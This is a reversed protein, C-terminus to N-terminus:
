SLRPPARTRYRAYYRAHTPVKLATPAMVVAALPPAPVSAAPLAGALAAGSVCWECQEGAIHADADVTHAALSAQAWLLLALLLTTVVSHPRLSM